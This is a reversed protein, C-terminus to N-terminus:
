QIMSLAIAGVRRAAGPEGLRSRLAGLRAITAARISESLLPEAARVLNAATLRGQILEPVIREGALINPMGICDVGRVLMRGL